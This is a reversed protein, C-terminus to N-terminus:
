RLRLYGAPNPSYGYSGSVTVTVPGLKRNSGVRCTTMGCTALSQMRGASDCFRKCSLTMRLHRRSFTYLLGSSATVCPLAQEGHSMEQQVLLVSLPLRGAELLPCRHVRVGASEHVPGARMSPM